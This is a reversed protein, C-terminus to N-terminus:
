GRRSPSCRPTRRRRGAAHWGEGVVAGAPDLVVAGVVPNPRTAEGVSASLAVARRMAARERDGRQDTAM